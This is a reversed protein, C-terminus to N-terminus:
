FPFLPCIQFSFLCTIKKAQTFYQLPIIFYFKTGVNKYM